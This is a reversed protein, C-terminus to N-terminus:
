IKMCQFRIDDCCADFVGFVNFCKGESIDEHGAKIFIRLRYFFLRVNQLLSRSVSFSIRSRILLGCEHM